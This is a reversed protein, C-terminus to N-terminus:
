VSGQRRASRPSLSTSVTALSVTPILWDASAVLSPPPHREALRHQGRTAFPPASLGAGVATRGTNQPGPQQQLASRRPRAFQGCATRLNPDHGGWFAKGGPCVPARAYCCHGLSHDEGQLSPPPSPPAPRRDAGGPVLDTGGVREEGRGQAGGLGACTLFSFQVFLFLRLWWGLGSCHATGAGAGPGWGPSLALLM